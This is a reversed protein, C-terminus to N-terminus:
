NVADLMVVLAHNTEGKFRGLDGIDVYDVIIDYQKIWLNFWTTIDVIICM